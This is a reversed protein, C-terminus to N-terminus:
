SPTSMSWASNTPNYTTAWESETPSRKSVEGPTLAWTRKVELAVYDLQNNLMLLVSEKDTPLEVLEIRASSRSAITKAENQADNLTGSFLARVADSADSDFIRYIQM